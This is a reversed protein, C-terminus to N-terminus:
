GGRVYGFENGDVGIGQNRLADSRERALGDGKKGGEYYYKEALTLDKECGIGEEYAKGMLGFALPVSGLLARTAHAYALREHQKSVGDRDKDCNSFLDRAIEYDAMPLGRRAALHLYHMALNIDIEVDTVKASSSSASSDRRNQITGSRSMKRATKKAEKPDFYGCQYVQGLRLQSPGHGLLAARRLYAVATFVNQQVLPKSSSLKL